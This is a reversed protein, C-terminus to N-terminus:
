STLFALRGSVSCTMPSGGTHTLQAQMPIETPDVEFYSPGPSYRIDAWTPVWAPGTGYTLVPDTPDTRMLWERGAAIVGNWGIAAGGHTLTPNNGPGFRVDLARMPATATAFPSLDLVGGSLVGAASTAAVVSTQSFWFSDPLVLKAVVAGFWPDAPERVFELPDSGLHARAVRDGDVRPHRLTVTRRHLRRALEDVRAEYASVDDDDAPGLGTVPDVGKIWIAMEFAGASFPRRQAGPTGHLDLQGYMGAVDLDSGAWGPTTQLGQATSIRSALTRIDWEDILYTDPNM